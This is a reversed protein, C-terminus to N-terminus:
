GRKPAELLHAEAYGCQEDTGRDGFVLEQSKQMVSSMIYKSPVHHAPSLCAEILGLSVGTQERGLVKHLGPTQPQILYTHM